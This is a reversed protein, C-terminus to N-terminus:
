GEDYETELVPVHGVEDYWRTLVFKGKSDSWVDTRFIYEHKGDATRRYYARNGATASNVDKTWFARYCGTSLIADILGRHKYEDSTM